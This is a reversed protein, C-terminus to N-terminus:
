KWFKKLPYSFAERWRAFFNTPAPTM